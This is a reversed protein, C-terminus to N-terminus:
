YVPTFRVADAVVYGTAGTAYITVSGTYISYGATFYHRGLLVWQGGDVTPERLPHVPRRSRTHGGQGLRNPRDGSTWRMYVDYYGTAPIRPTWRAWAEATTGARVQYNSGYYGAVSTSRTWNGWIDSGGLSKATPNDLIIARRRM